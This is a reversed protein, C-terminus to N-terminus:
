RKGSYAVSLLDEILPDFRRINDSPMDAALNVQLSITIETDPFYFTRGITAPGQGGHGYGDGLDGYVGGLESASIREIGMGCYVGEILMHEEELMTALSVSDLINGQMLERFFLALEYPTVILGMSGTNVKAMNMELDSFNQLEGTFLEGYGSVTNPIQDPYGPDAKYFTNVLGLPNTIEQDFYAGLGMESANEIIIGLLCYGINSYLFEEGPDAIAPQDYVHREFLDDTSKFIEPDNVLDVIHPLGFNILGSTHGLLQRITATDANAIRNAIEPTLYNGFPEDLGIAGDEVLRMVLTAIYTKLQSASHHLHCPKMPIHEEISAMGACGVWWGQDPTEIAVSIGPMGLRVYEDLVQNYLDSYPNMATGTEESFSCTEVPETYEKTCSILTTGIVAFVLIINRFKM